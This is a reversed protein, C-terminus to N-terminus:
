DNPDTASDATPLGHDGDAVPMPSCSCSQTPEMGKPFVGETSIPCLPGARCGTAPDVGVLVVGPPATFDLAPRTATAAKMFTTWIPLAAQAGTLGLEEKKDFGTWVVALLNPRLAPLGRM